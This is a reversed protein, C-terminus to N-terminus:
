YSTPSRDVAMSCKHDPRHLSSQSKQQQPNQNNGWNYWFTLKSCRLLGRLLRDLLEVLICRYILIWVGGCTICVLLNLDVKQISSEGIGISCPLKQLQMMRIHWDGRVLSIQFWQNRDHYSVISNNQVSMVVTKSVKEIVVCVKDQRSSCSVRLNSIAVRSDRKPRVGLVQPCVGSCTRRGGM